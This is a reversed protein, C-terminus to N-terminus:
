IYVRWLAMLSQSHATKMAWEWGQRQEKGMAADILFDHDNVEM